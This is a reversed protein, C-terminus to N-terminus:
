QFERTWAPRGGMEALHPEDRDLVPGMPHGGPMPSDKPADPLAFTLKGADWLDPSDGQLVLKVQDKDAVILKGSKFDYSGALAERRMAKDDKPFQGRTKVWDAAHWEMYARNNFFRDEPPKGSSHVEVVNLRAARMQDIAGGSNPGGADVLVLDFPGVGRTANLNAAFAAIESSSAGRLHWSPWMVLGQRRVFGTRDDGFRAPDIGLRNQAWAIDSLAYNRGCARDIDEPGLFKNLATRPFLGLIYIRVWANERGYTAIATRAKEMPVRPSRNPDDPDGTVVILHWLASLNTAIEHLLADTSVPNGGALVKCFVSDATRAQETTRGIAIPVDGAEDIVQLVYPGHLGSLTAGLTNEDAGDQFSRFSMFGTDPRDILALRKTNLDLLKMCLPSRARWIALEKVYNDHLNKESISVAAGCPAWRGDGWVTMFWLTSMALWASKATGAAAQIAIRQFQPGPDALAACASVQAPDLTVKFQEEMFQDPRKRWRRVHDVLTARQEATLVDGSLRAPGPLDRRPRWGPQVDPM